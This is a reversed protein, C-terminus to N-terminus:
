GVMGFILFLLFGAFFMATTGPTEATEHAEVLLEETVLFLLAACGFALVGGLVPAAANHLVTDGVVAGVPLLLSLTAPVGVARARSASRATLSAAIALGLSLLELSLALTLLLGEKVGAAFAIGLLLGDLLIDVGVAFLMGLPAAGTSARAALDPLPAPVRGPLASAAFPEPLKQEGEAGETWRRVLLMVMVGSAFGLAVAVPNNSRVVDPLLEVAVVSFVVGAAFHQLGSRARPGPSRWAAFVAGITTAGVPLLALRVIHDLPSM